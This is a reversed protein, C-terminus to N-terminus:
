HPMPTTSCGIKGDAAQSCFVVNQSGPTFFWVKDGSASIPSRSPPIAQAPIQLPPMSQPPTSQSYGVQTVAYGGAFAALVCALIAIKSMAEEGVTFQWKVLGCAERALDRANPLNVKGTRIAEHGRCCRIANM